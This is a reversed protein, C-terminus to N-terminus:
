RWFKIVMAEILHFASPFSVYSFINEIKLIIVILFWCMSKYFFDNQILLDVYPRNFIFEDMGDNTTVCYAILKNSLNIEINHKYRPYCLISLINDLVRWLNIMRISWLIITLTM